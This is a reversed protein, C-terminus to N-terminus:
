EKICRVSVTHKAFFYSLSPISFNATAELFANRFPDPDNNLLIRTRSWVGGNIGRARLSGDVHNRYGAAPIMFAEGLFFANGFVANGAEWNNDSIKDYKNNNAMAEFQTDTPLTWGTPCPNNNELDWVEPKDFPIDTWGPYAEPHAQDWEATMVPDKKGWIYKDGHVSANRTYPDNYVTAGLNFCQFQLWNSAIGNADATLKNGTYAGCGTNVRVYLDKDFLKIPINFAKGAYEASPTGKVKIPIIGEGGDEIATLTIPEVVVVIGSAHPFELVEPISQGAADLYKFFGASMPEYEVGTGRDANDLTESTGTAFVAGTFIRRLDTEYVNYIPDFNVVEPAVISNCLNMWDTGNWYEICHIDTNYIMLGKALDDKKEQFAETVSLANRESTTMQPLRLGKEQNSILELASFVEPVKEEGISVQALLSSNFGYICLIFLISTLTKKIEM